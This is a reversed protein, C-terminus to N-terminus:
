IFIKSHALNLCNQKEKNTTLLFVSFLSFNGIENENALIYKIKM